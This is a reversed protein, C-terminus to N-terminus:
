YILMFFVEQFKKFEEYFIGEGGNKEVKYCIEESVFGIVVYFNIFFVQCIIKMVFVEVKQEVEYFIEM